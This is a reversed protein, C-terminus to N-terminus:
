GPRAVDHARGVQLRFVSGVTSAASSRAAACCRRRGRRRASPRARRGARPCRRRRRRRGGDATTSPWGDSRRTPSPVLRAQWFPTTGSSWFMPTSLSSTSWTSAACPMASVSPRRRCSPWGPTPARRGVSTPRTLSRRRPSAIRSPRSGSRGSASRRGAGRRTRGPRRPSRPRRCAPGATPRARGSRTRRRRRGPVPVRCRAAPSGRARDAPRRGPRGRQRGVPM